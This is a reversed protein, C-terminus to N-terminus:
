SEDGRVLLNDFRVDTGRESTTVFLGFGIFSRPAANDRATAIRDGNVFLTLRAGGAVAECDGRIRNRASIGALARNTDGLKLIQQKGAAVDQKVIAYSADPAVAFVYGLTPSGWCSVGHAEFALKRPEVLVVDAEVSLRARADDFLRSHQPRDPNRVLIHYAGDSCSLAVREDRDTSWQRCSGEFDDTFTAQAPMLRRNGVLTYQSRAEKCVSTDAIVSPEGLLAWSDGAVCSSIVFHALEDGGDPGFQEDLASRLDALDTCSQPAALGFADLELTTWQDEASSDAIVSVAEACAPSAVPVRASSVPTAATTTSSGGRGDGASSGCGVLLALSMAMALGSAVSRNCTQSFM